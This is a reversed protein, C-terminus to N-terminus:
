GFLEVMIDDHSDDVIRRIRETRFRDVERARCPEPRGGRRKIIAAVDCGADAQANLEALYDDDLPREHFTGYESMPNAPNSQNTM